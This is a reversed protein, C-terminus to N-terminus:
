RRKDAYTDHRWDLQDKKLEAELAELLGQLGELTVFAVLGADRDCFRAKVRGADVSIGVTGPVRTKGDGYVRDAIFGVLQPYLLREAAAGPYAATGGSAGAAARRHDLIGM